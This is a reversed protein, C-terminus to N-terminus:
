PYPGRIPLRFPGAEGFSEAGAKFESFSVLLYGEPERKREGGTVTVTLGTVNTVTYRDDQPIPRALPGAPPHIYKRLDPGRSFTCTRPRYEGKPMQMAERPLYARLAWDPGMICVIFESDGALTTFSQALDPKLRVREDADDGITFELKESERGDWALSVSHKGQEALTFWPRLAVFFGIQGGGPIGVGAIGCCEQLWRRPANFPIIKVDPGYVRLWQAFARPRILNVHQPGDNVLAIIAEIPQKPSFQHRYLALHVTISGKSLSVSRGRAVLAVAVDHVHESERLYQSRQNHMDGYAAYREVLHITLVLFLALPLWPLVANMMRTSREKSPLLWKRVAIGIGQAAFGSLGFFGVVILVHGALIAEPARFIALRDIALATLIYALCCLLYAVWSAWASLGRSSHLVVAFLLILLLYPLPRCHDFIDPSLRLGLVLGFYLGLVIGYGCALIVLVRPTRM